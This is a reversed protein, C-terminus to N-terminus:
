TNILSATVVINDRYHGSKRDFPGGCSILRLAAHDTNGYVSKTPFQDKRYRGVDDVKFVAVSHDARTVRLIDGPELSGLRFFVSPGRSSDIHGVIVAPGVSGPTPSYRYWAAQDYHPGAPVELAGAPTIGVRILTTQVGISPIDLTTPASAPLVPGHEAPGPARPASSLPRSPPASAGAVAPRLGAVSPASVQSLPPQHPTPRWHGALALGICTVGAVALAAIAAAAKLGRRSDIIRPRAWRM